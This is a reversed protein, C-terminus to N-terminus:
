KGYAIFPPNEFGPKGYMLPKGDVTALRGGAEEVIVHGAATDWEMTRGFRPYIDARGEAILGFKVASSMLIIEGVDFNKLFALGAPMPKSRSRTVIIKQEPARTRIRAAKGGSVSCFAGKGKAAFYLFDQPPAYLVGLVPRRNEILAINVTFEKEGRVFSLTGDLPDVLWFRSHGANLTEDEEAVVPIDPALKLLAETIFRNAALDADTVPSKDEKHQTAFDGQFYRMLLAGASRAIACCGELYEGRATSNM